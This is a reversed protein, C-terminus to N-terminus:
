YNLNIKKSKPLYAVLIVLLMQYVHKNQEFYEAILSLIGTYDDRNILQAKISGQDIKALLSCWSLLYGFAKHKLCGEPAQGFILQEIQNSIEGDSEDAQDLAPPNEIM